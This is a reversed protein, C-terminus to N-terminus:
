EQAHRDLMDGLWDDVASALQQSADYNDLMKHKDLAIAAITALQRQDGVPPRPVVKSNYTNDKGGFNFITAPAQMDDLAREAAEVLRESIRARRAALDARTAETANKTQARRADDTLQLEARLKRVFTIGVGHREAVNRLSGEATGHTRRLDERIAERVADGLRAVSAAERGAAIV